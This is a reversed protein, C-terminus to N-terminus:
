PRIIAPRHENGVDEPRQPMIRLGPLSSDAPAREQQQMPGQQPKPLLPEDHELLTPAEVKQVIPKTVPLAPPPLPKPKPPPPPAVPASPLMPPAVVVTQVPVPAPKSALPPRAPSPPPVPAQPAVPAPVPKAFWVLFRHWWSDKPKKPTPVEATKVEQKQLKPVAPAAPVIPKPLPPPPPVPKVVVPAPKPDPKQDPPPPPKVPMPAIPPPVSKPVSVLQAPKQVLLPVVPKQVFAPAAPKYMAPISVRAAGHVGKCLAAFGAWVLGFFLMWLGFLIVLNDWTTVPGLSHLIFLAYWVGGTVGMLVTAFPKRGQWLFLGLGLGILVWKFVFAPEGLIAVQGAGVHLAVAAAGSAVILVLGIGQAARIARVFPDQALEAEHRHLSVLHACLLVTQGGVGLMIGLQQLLLICLWLLEGGEM